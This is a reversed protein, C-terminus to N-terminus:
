KATRRGAKTSAGDAEAEAPAAPAAGVATILGVTLAHEVAAPAFAAADFETGRYMYTDSGARTPLVVAGATVKYRADM